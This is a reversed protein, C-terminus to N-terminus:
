AQSIRCRTLMTAAMAGLIATATMLWFAGGDFRQYAWGSVPVMLGPVIGSAISSYLGQARAAMAAPIARQMFYMAGLHAACFTAAHFIQFVVLWHFDSTVALASWRVVGGLMATLLLTEPRFTRLIPGAFAFLVIEAVVGEGWLLGIAQSSLGAKQWHLTAFGYLVTHGAQNLAATALFWRFAPM